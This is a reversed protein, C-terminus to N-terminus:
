DRGDWKKDVAHRWVCWRLKERSSYTRDVEDSNLQEQTPPEQGCHRCSRCVFAGEAMEIAYASSEKLKYTKECKSCVKDVFQEKCSM